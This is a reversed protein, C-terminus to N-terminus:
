ELVGFDVVGFGLVHIMGGPLIILSLEVGSVSSPRM